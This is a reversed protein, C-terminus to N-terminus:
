QSSTDMCPYIKGRVERERLRERGRLRERERVCVRERVREKRIVM